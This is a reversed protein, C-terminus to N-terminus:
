NGVQSVFGSEKQAGPMHTYMNTHMHVHPCRHTKYTYRNIHAHSIHIYPVSADWTIGIHMFSDPNLILTVSANMRM